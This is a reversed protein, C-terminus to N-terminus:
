VGQAAETAVCRCILLCNVLAQLSATGILGIWLGVAGMKHRFALSYALPLGLAWYTVLSVAAGLKQQGCGRM